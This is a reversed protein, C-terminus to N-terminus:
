KNKEYIFNQKEKKIFNFKLKNILNDSEKKSPSKVKIYWYGDDYEISNLFTNHTTNLNVIDQLNNRFLRQKLDLEILNDMIYKLQIQHTAYNQKKLLEKTDFKYKNVLSINTYLKISITSLLLFVIFFISLFNNEIFEILKQLLSGNGLSYKFLLKNKNKLYVSIDKKEFNTSINKDKSVEFSNKEDSAIISSKLELEINELEIHTFSVSSITEYNINFSNLKEKLLEVDLAFVKFTNKNKKDQIIIYEFEKSPLSSILMQPIIKKARSVNNVPLKKEFYWYYYPSLIVEKYVTNNKNNYINEKSLFCIEKKLKDM